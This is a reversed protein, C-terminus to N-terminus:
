GTTGESKRAGERLGARVRAFVEENDILEVRVAEYEATRRDLEAIWAHSL